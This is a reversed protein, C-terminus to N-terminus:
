KNYIDLAKLVVFQEYSEKKNHSKKWNTFLKKNYESYAQSFCELLFFNITFEISDDVNFPNFNPLREQM